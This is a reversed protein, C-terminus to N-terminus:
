PIRTFNVLRKGKIVRGIGVKLCFTSGEQPRAVWMDKDKWYSLVEKTGNSLDVEYTGTEEPLDIAMRNFRTISHVAELLSTITEIPLGSPDGTLDIEDSLKQRYELGGGPTRKLSRFGNIERLTLDGDVRIHYELEQIAREKIFHELDRLKPILELVTISYFFSMNTDMEDVGKNQDLPPNQSVPNMTFKGDVVKGVGFMLAFREAVKLKKLADYSEKRQTTTIPLVDPESPHSSHKPM